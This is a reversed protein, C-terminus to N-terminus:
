DSKKFHSQGLRRLDDATLRELSEVLHHAQAFNLHRTLTTPVAITFMGATHAAALGHPSDEFATCNEPAVGLRRAALLYVDPAPKPHAVENVAAIAAFRSSLGTIGLVREVWVREANSAVACPIGEADLADLLAVVGPMPTLAEIAAGYHARRRATIAERDYGSGVSEALAAHWDPTGHGKATGITQAWDQLDLTLGHEAYLTRWAEFDPTETDALLGDCDFIVARLTM